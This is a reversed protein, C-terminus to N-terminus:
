PKYWSGGPQTVKSQSKKKKRAERERKHAEGVTGAADSATRTDVNKPKPKPKPKKKKAADEAAWKKTMERARKLAQKEKIRKEHGKVMTSARSAINSM